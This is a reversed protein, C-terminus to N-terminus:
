LVCVRIAVGITALLLVAFLFKGLSDAVGRHKRLYEHLIGYVQSLSESIFLENM